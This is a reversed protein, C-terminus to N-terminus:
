DICVGLIRICEEDDDDGDGGGRGGPPRVVTISAVGSAGGSSARLRTTGRSHGAVIGASDVTAIKPQEVTWTVTVDRLEGGGRERVVASAAASRGEEITLAEPVVEVEVDVMAVVVSECASLSAFALFAAPTSFVRLSSREHSDRM